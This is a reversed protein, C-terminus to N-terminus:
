VEEPMDPWARNLKRINESGVLLQMNAHVHLGCVLPSTIPVVHDVHWLVGTARSLERAKKYLLRIGTIDAWKPTAQKKNVQYRRCKEAGQVKMQESTAYREREYANHSALNASRWKKCAAKHKGMNANRWAYIKERSTIKNEKYRQNTQARIHVRNAKYRAATYASACERCKNTRGNASRSHKQFMELTKEVGCYKCTKIV